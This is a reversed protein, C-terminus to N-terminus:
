RARQNASGENTIQRPTGGAADVVYIQIPKINQEVDVKQVSFSVTKGDPSLQPDSIRSIKLLAQVDFVPKQASALAAACLWVCAMKSMSVSQLPFGPCRGRGGFIQDVIHPPPGHDRVGTAKTQM